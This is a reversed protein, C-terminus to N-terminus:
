VDHRHASSSLIIVPLCHLVPQSRLWQLVEMGTHKPMKLDLIALGPLPYEERNAFNGNGSLYDIVAQGDRAVYLPNRIEANAFARKLLFVDDDNDEALLIGLSPKM